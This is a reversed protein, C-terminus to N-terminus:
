NSSSATDSEAASDDSKSFSVAASGSIIFFTREGANGIVEMRESLKDSDFTNAVDEYYERFGRFKEASAIRVGSFFNPFAGDNLSAKEGDKLTICDYYVTENVVVKGYIEEAREIFSSGEECMERPLLAFVAGDGSPAYKALNRLTFEEEINGNQVADVTDRYIDFKEGLVESLADAHKEILEAYEEPTRADIIEAHDGSLGGSSSFLDSTLANVVARFDSYGRVGCITIKSEPTLKGNLYYIKELYGFFDESITKSVRQNSCSRSFAEYDGAVAAKSISWVRSNSIYTAAYSIKTFKGLFQLYDSALSYSADVGTDVALIILGADEIDKHLSFFEGIDADGTKIKESKAALVYPYLAALGEPTMVLMAAFQLVLAAVAFVAVGKILRKSFLKRINKM